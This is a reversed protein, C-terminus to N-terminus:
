PLFLEHFDLVRRCNGGTRVLLDIKIKRMKWRLSVLVCQGDLFHEAGM